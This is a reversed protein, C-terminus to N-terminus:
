SAKGHGQHDGVFADVAIHTLRFAGVLRNRHPRDDVLDVRVFAGFTDPVVVCRLADLNARHCANGVVRSVRFAPIGKPEFVM